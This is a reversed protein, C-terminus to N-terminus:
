ATTAKWEARIELAAWEQLYAIHGAAREINKKILIPHREMYDANTTFRERAYEAVIAWGASTLEAPYMRGRFIGYKDYQSIRRALDRRGLATLTRQTRACGTLAIAILQREMEHSVNM